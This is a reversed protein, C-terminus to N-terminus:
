AEGGLDVHEPFMRDEAALARGVRENWLIAMLCVFEEAVSM